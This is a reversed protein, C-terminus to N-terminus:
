RFEPGALHKAIQQHVKPTERVILISVALDVATVIYIHHSAPDAIRSSQAGSSTKHHLYQGGIRTCLYLKISYSKHVM